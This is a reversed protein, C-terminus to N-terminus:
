GAGGLVRAVDPLGAVPTVGPLREPPNRGRSLWLARIGARRAGVVDREWSDGVMIADPAGVRLGATVLQFARPDPKGIGTEGSIVVQDFCDALGTRALKWRQIDPPGNTLLGLPRRGALSRVLAAAGAVLHHGQRQHALYVEGLRRALAEDELGFLCLVARWAEARFRPIWGALGELRPHAGEFSAWLGEWSAIGLEAGLSRHPGSRWVRRVAGLVLEETGAGVVIGPITRAADRLSARAVEEEVILTDDLDFIM